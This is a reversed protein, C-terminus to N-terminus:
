SVTRRQWFIKKEASPIAPKLEPRLVFQSWSAATCTGPRAPVSLLIRWRETRYPRVVLSANETLPLERRIVIM